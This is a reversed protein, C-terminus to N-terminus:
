FNSRPRHRLVVPKSPLQIDWVNVEMYRETCSSQNNKRDTRDGYLLKISSYRSTRHSAVPQVVQRLSPNLKKLVANFRSELGDSDRVWHVGTIGRGTRLAPSEGDLYRLLSYRPTWGKRISTTARLYALYSKVKEWKAKNNITDCDIIM